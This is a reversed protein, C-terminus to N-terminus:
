SNYSQNNEKKKTEKKKARSHKGINWQNEMYNSYYQTLENKFIDRYDPNEIMSKAILAAEVEDIEGDANVLEGQNNYVDYVSIYENVQGERDAAEQQQEDYHQQILVKEEETIGDSVDVGEVPNDDEVYLKLEEDTIGLEGWKKGFISDALDDAFTRGSIHEDYALSLLDGKDIINTKVLHEAAGRNFEVTSEAELNASMSLYNNAQSTLVDKTVIDKYGVKKALENVGVFKMDGDKITKEHKASEELLQQLEAEDGGVFVPEGYADYDARQYIAQIKSDLVDMAANAEALKATADPDPMMVGMKGQDPCKEVGEECEYEVLRAEDELLAMLAQGEPTQDWGNRLTGKDVAAALDTRFDKYDAFEGAKQNLDRISLAKDKAGGMIYADRGEMLKDYLAEYEDAPLEGNSALIDQVYKNYEGANSALGETFKVTQNLLGQSVTGINKVAEAGASAADYAGQVLTQDAGM